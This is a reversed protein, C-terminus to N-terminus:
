KGAQEAVIREIAEQSLSGRTMADFAKLLTDLQHSQAPTFKEPPLEEILYKVRASLEALFAQKTKAEELAVRKGVIEVRSELLELSSEMIKGQWSQIAENIKELTGQNQEQTKRGVVFFVISAGFSVLGVVLSVFGIIDPSM